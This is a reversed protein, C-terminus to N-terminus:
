VSGQLDLTGEGCDVVTGKIMKGNQRFSIKTNESIFADKNIHIAM